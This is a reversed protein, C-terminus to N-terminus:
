IVLQASGNKVIKQVDEMKIEHSFFHKFHFVFIVASSNLLVIAELLM